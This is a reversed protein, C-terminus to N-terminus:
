AGDEEEEEEEKHEENALYDLTYDVDLRLDNLKMIYVDEAHEGHPNSVRDEVIRQTLYVKDEDFVHAIRINGIDLPDEDENEHFTLSDNDDGTRQKLKHLNGAENVVGLLLSRSAFSSSYAVVDGISPSKANMALSTIALGRVCSTGVNMLHM